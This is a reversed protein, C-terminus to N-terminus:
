PGVQVLVELAGGRDLAIGTAPGGSRLGCRPGLQGEEASLLASPGLQIRFRGQDDSRQSLGCGEVIAGGVPSGDAQVLQGQVQVSSAPSATCAQARVSIWGVPEGAEDLLAAGVKPETVGQYLLGDAVLGPGSLASRDAPVSRLPCSVVRAGHTSSLWEQLQEGGPAESWAPKAVRPRVPQTPLFLAGALGLVVLVVLSFGGAYRFPFWKPAAM